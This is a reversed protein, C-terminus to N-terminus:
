VGSQTQKPTIKEWPIEKVKVGWDFVSCVNCAIDLERNYLLYNNDLNILFKNNDRIELVRMIKNGVGINVLKQLKKFRVLETLTKKEATGFASVTNSAKKSTEVVEKKAAESEEIEYSDYKVMEIKLKECFVKFSQGKPRLSWNQNYQELTMNKAVYMSKTNVKVVLFTEKGKTVKAGIFVNDANAKM